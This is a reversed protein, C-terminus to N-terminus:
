IFGYKHYCYLLRNGLDVQHQIGYKTTFSGDDNQKYQRIRKLFKQVILDSGSMELTIFSEMIWLLDYLDYHACHDELYTLNSNVIEKDEGHDSGSFTVISMWKNQPHGKLYDGDYYEKLYARGKEMFTINQCLFEKLYRLVGNTFWARNDNNLPYLWGPPLFKIIRLNEDWFGTSNQINKLYDMTNLLLCGGIKLNNLKSLAAITCTVSSIDGTYDADIRTWGGDSNQYKSIAEAFESDESKHLLTDFFLQEYRDGYKKIYNILKDPDFPLESM